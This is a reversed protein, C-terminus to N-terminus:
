EPLGRSADASLEPSTYVPETPIDDTELALKKGRRKAKELVVPPAFKEPMAEEATVEECLPNAALAPHWEYITGDKKNRLYRM